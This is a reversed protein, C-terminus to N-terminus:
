GLLGSEYTKRKATRIRVQNGWQCAANQSSQGKPQGSESKNGKQCAPNQSTNKRNAPRIRVIHEQHPRLIGVPAGAGRCEWPPRPSPPQSCSIEPISLYVELYQIDIAALIRLDLSSGSTPIQTPDRDKYRYIKSTNFKHINNTEQTFKKLV